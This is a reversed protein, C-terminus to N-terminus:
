QFGFHELINSTRPVSFSFNNEVPGYKSYEQILETRLVYFIHKLHRISLALVARIAPGVGGKGLWTTKSKNNGLGQGM